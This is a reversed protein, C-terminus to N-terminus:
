HVTAVAITTRIILHKYHMGVGSLPNLYAKKRGKGLIAVILPSLFMIFGSWM